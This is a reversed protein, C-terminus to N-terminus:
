VDVVCYTILVVLLLTHYTVFIFRHLVDDVFLLHLFFIFIPYV